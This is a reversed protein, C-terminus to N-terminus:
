PSQRSGSTYRAVAASDNLSVLVEAIIFRNNAENKVTKMQEVLPMVAPHGLALLAKRVRWFPIWSNPDTLLEALRTATRLDAREALIELALTRIVIDTDSLAWVTEERGAAHQRVIDLLVARRQELPLGTFEAQTMAPLPRMLFCLSCLSVLTIIRTFCDM